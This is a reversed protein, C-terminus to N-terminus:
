LFSCSDRRLCLVHIHPRIRTRCCKGTPKRGNSSTTLCKKLVDSTEATLLGDNALIDEQVKNLLAEYAEKNGADIELAQLFYKKADSISEQVAAEALRGFYLDRATGARAANFGFAGTLGVCGVALGTLFRRWKKKRRKREM